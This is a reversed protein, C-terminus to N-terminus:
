GAGAKTPHNEPLCSAGSRTEPKRSRKREVSPDLRPVRIAAMASAISTLSRVSEPSQTPATSMTSNRGVIKTPSVSPGNRSRKSRRLSIIPESRTRTATKQASGNAVLGPAITARAATAPSAFPKKRGATYAPTGFRTDFSSSGSAFASSWVTSFTLQIIPGIRPPSIVAAKPGFVAYQILATENRMEAASTARM